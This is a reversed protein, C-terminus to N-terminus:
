DTNESPGDIQMTFRGNPLQIKTFGQITEGTKQKLQEPTANEKAM